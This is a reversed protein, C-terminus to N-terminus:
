KRPIYMLIFIGLLIFISGIFDWKDPKFGDFSMAWFISFIIFIGGYAAYIRGFDNNQFTALIGYLGLAIIGIIGFYLPKQEKLWLWILFGGGVEFFAALIFLGLSKLM